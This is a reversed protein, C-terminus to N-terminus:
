MLIKQSYKIEHLRKLDKLEKLASTLIEFLERPLESLIPYAKDLQDVAKKYDKKAIALYAIQERCQPDDKIIKEYAVLQRHSAEYFGQERLCRSLWLHPKHTVLMDPTYLDIVVYLHAIAKSFDGNSYELLARSFNVQGETLENVWESSLLTRNIAKSRKLEALCRLRAMGTIADYKSLQEWSSLAAQWAHLRMDIRALETYYQDSLKSSFLIAKNDTLISRAHTINGSERLHKVKVLVINPQTVKVLDNAIVGAQQQLSNILMSAMQEPMYSTEPYAKNIQIIVKSWLSRCYSLHAIEERCWPDNKTHNEFNILQEHSNSYKGQERYCRSLILEPCKARLEKASAQSTIIILEKIASGWDRQSMHLFVKAYEAAKSTNFNISSRLLQIEEIAGRESLCRIYTLIDDDIMNTSANSFYFIADDWRNYAASIYAKSICLIDDPMDFRDIIKEAKQMKGQRLLCVVLYKIMNVDVQETSKVIYNLKKEAISWRGAEIALMVQTFLQNINGKDEPGIVDLDIIARYTRECCLGDRYPFTKEIRSIIEPAPICNNELLKELEYFVEDETNVVPGFGDRRYDFYGKSYSHGGLFFSDEDFQYYITQKNQIAVEFSVSSYDTIMLSSKNFLDQISGSAHTIVEIYEPTKFDNIYPQINAHPFFMVKYNYRSVLDKLAKSHILSYWHKAFSSDMFESNIEREFGNKISDGVISKRWTPMILIIKDSCGINKCLADHRPFGTLKVEKTSFKYKTYDGCISKYEEPSATIFCDIQEKQNLWGSIDDKTVGHQLFIFDRGRLMNKGLYNTVYRDAHSSILKSCGKIASEHEKSGFPLLNFGENSLRDWDHSKVDLIFYIKQESHAKMIYRYLHEANDDAQKDRDMFIWADRYKDEPFFQPNNVKFHNEITEYALCGKFQEGGMSISTPKEDIKIDLLDKTSDFSVWARIEYIFVDGLFDHKIVKSYLSASDETNIRIHECGLEHTFYRIQVQKKAEDIDNIYVIQFNPSQSKFYSLLGAKHFFWSGGLEFKMITDLDIYSFIEKLLAKFAEKKELSLFDIKECNNVIRNFYWILHYLVTRQIHVPIKEYKNKFTEFVGICGLSLVEDYLGAKEWSRDLTSSGDSRKRYFYKSSKIFAISDRHNLASMYHAVFHADEFSPRIKENFFINNKKIEDTRFIATSASLQICREIDNSPYLIDGNDFRFKLPHTNKYVGEDEYHFILNCCLLSIHSSSNVSAFLDLNLFYDLDLTDDPDVFTIWETNVFKIGLNRASAQGGNEKYIYQINNPYKNQWKKIIDASNDTSGDDVLVLQIHKKFDLRQKVLSNFYDDLYRGVNYVASVVTYQYHGEMKKPKLYSIKDSHKIAMDSFFLKPNNVLKRFKRKLM